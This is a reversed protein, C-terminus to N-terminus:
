KGELVEIVHKLFGLDICQDIKIRRGSALEIEISCSCAQPVAAPEPLQPPPLSVPVFSQRSLRSGAKDAFQKRWRFLLSSSVGHKRAIASVRAGAVLLEAVIARKEALTRRRRADM